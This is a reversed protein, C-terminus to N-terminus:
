SQSPSSSESEDCKSPCSDCKTECESPCSGCDECKPCLKELHAQVKLAYAKTDAMIDLMPQPANATKMQEVGKDFLKCGDEKKGLMILTVGKAIDTYPEAKPNDEKMSDLYQFVDNVSSFGNEPLKMEAHAASFLLLFSLIASKM